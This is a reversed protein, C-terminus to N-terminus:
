GQRWGEIGIVAYAVRGSLVIFYVPYNIDLIVLVVWLCNCGNNDKASFSGYRQVVFGTLATNVIRSLSAM